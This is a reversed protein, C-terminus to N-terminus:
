FGPEPGEKGEPPTAPGAGADPAPPSGYFDSAPTETARTEGYFNNTEVSTQQVDLNTQGVSGYFNNVPRGEDPTALAPMDKEDINGTVRRGFWAEEVLTHRVDDSVTAYAKWFKSM